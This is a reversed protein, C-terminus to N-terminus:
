ALFGPSLLLSVFFPAQVSVLVAASAASPARLRRAEPRAHQAGTAGPEVKMEKWAAEHPASHWPLSPFSGEWCASLGTRSDKQPGTPKGSPCASDEGSTRTRAEHPGKGPSSLRPESVHVHILSLTNNIPVRKFYVRCRIAQTRPQVRSKPQKSNSIWGGKTSSTQRPDM